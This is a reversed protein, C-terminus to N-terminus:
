YSRILRWCRQSSSVEVPERKRRPLIGSYYQKQCLFICQIGQVRRAATKVLRSLSHIHMKTRRNSAKKKPCNQKVSKRPGIKINICISQHSSGRTSREQQLPQLVMLIVVLVCLNIAFENGTEYHLASRGNISSQGRFTLKSEKLM